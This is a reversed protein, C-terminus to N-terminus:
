KKIAINCKPPLVKSVEASKVESINDYNFLATSRHGTRDRILKEEVGENFLISPCSVRLSGEKCPSSLINNLTNIRVPQKDFAFRKSNPNFYFTTVENSCAQVLGLYM